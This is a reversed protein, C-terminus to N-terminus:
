STCQGGSPVGMVYQMEDTQRDTQRDTQASERRVCVSENVLSCNTFTAILAANGSSAARGELRELGMYVVRDFKLM